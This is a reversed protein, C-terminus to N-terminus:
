TLLNKVSAKLVYLTSLLLLQTPYVIAKPFRIVTQTSSPDYICYEFNCPM